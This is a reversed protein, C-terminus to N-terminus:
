LNFWKDYQSSPPPKKWSQGDPQEYICKVDIKGYVKKLVNVVGLQIFDVQDTPTYDDVSSRSITVLVPVMELNRLFKELWDLMESIDNGSSLHHPLETADCTLGANHVLSWDVEDYYEKACTVIAQVLDLMQSPIDTLFVM